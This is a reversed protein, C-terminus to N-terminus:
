KGGGHRAAELQHALLTARAKTVAITQSAIMKRASSESVKSNSLQDLYMKMTQRVMSKIDPDSQRGAEEQDLKTSLRSSDGRLDASSKLSTFEPLWRRTEELEKSWSAHIRATERKNGRSTGDAFMASTLVARVSRIPNSSESQGITARFHTHESPRLSEPEKEFKFGSKRPFVKRLILSQSIDRILHQQTTTGDSFTTIIGMGYAAVSSKADNALDVDVMSTKPDFRIRAIRLASETTVPKQAAACHISGAWIGLLIIALLIGRRCHLMSNMCM